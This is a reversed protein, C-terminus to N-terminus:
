GSPDLTELKTPCIFIYIYITSYEHADMGWWLTLSVKTIPFKETCFLIKLYMPHTVSEYDMYLFPFHGWGITLSINLSKKKIKKINLAAFVYHSLIYIDSTSRVLIVRPSYTHKLGEFKFNPWTLPSEM